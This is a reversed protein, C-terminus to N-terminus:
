ILGKPCINEDLRDILTQITINSLEDNVIKEIRLLETRLVCTPRNQCVKDRFLCEAFEIGEQFIEVLDLLKVTDAEVIMKVGGTPGLKSEVLGHHVMQQLLGRLFQHPIGQKESIEKAPIYLKQGALAMLARVAYDTHKTLLKM